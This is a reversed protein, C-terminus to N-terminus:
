INNITIGQSYYYRIRKNRLRCIACHRSCELCENFTWPVFPYIHSITKFFGLVRSLYLIRIMLYSLTFNLKLARSLLNRSKNRLKEEQSSHYRPYTGLNRYAETEDGVFYSNIDIGTKYFQKLYQILDNRYLVLFLAQCTILM